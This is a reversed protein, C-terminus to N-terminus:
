PFPKGPVSGCSAPSSRTSGSVSIFSSEKESWSKPRMIPSRRIFAPSSGTTRRSSVSALQRGLFETNEDNKLFRMPSFVSNRPLCNADTEDLRVVPEEGAKMRLDGIIRGFDQLSFSDLKM